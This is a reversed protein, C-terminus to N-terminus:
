TFSTAITPAPGAPVEFSCLQMWNKQFFILGPTKESVGIKDLIIRTERAANGAYFQYFQKNLLKM